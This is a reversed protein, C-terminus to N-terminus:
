RSAVDQASSTPPARAPSHGGARGARPAATRLHFSAASQSAPPPPTGLRGGGSRTAGEAGATDLAAARLAAPASGEAPPFASAVEGPLPRPPQPVMLRGARGM